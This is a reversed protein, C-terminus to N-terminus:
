RHIAALVHLNGACLSFLFYAMQAVHEGHHAKKVGLADFFVFAAQQVALAARAHALNGALNQLAAPLFRAHQAHAIALMTSGDAVQLYVALRVNKQVGQGDFRM